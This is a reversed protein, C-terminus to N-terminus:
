KKFLFHCVIVVTTKYKVFLKIDIWSTAFLCRPKSAESLVYGLPLCRTANGRLLHRMEGFCTILVHFTHLVSIHAEDFRICFNILSIPCHHFFFIQFMEDQNTQFARKNVLPLRKNHSPFQYQTVSCILVICHM